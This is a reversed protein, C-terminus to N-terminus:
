ALAPELGGSQTREDAVRVGYRYTLKGGLWGSACLLTAALLSLGLEVNGVPPEDLADDKLRAERRVLGISFLLLITANLAMHASATVGVASQTKTPIKLYDLFGFVAAGAASLIGTEILKAAGQAYTRPESSGRSMLDFVLSSAFAGIPLTVALPHYPHGYPGAIPNLPEKYQRLGENTLSNM